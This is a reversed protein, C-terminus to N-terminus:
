AKSLALDQWSGTWQWQTVALHMTHENRPVTTYAAGDPKAKQIHVHCSLCCGKAHSRYRSVVTVAADWRPQRLSGAAGPCALLLRRPVCHWPAAHSLVGQQWSGQEPGRRGAQPGVQKFYVAVIPLFGVKVVRRLNLTMMCSSSM